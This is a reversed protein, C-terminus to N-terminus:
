DAKGEELLLPEGPRYAKKWTTQHHVGFVDTYTVQAEFRLELHGNRVQEFVAGDLPMFRRRLRSGAALITATEPNDSAMAGSPESEFAPVLLMNAHFIVDNARTRGHNRLVVEFSSDEDFRGNRTVLGEVLLDARETLAREEIRQERERRVNEQEVLVKGREVSWADYPAVFVLLALGIAFTIWPAGALFWSDPHKTALIGLVISFGTLVPGSLRKGWLKLTTMLYEWVRRM